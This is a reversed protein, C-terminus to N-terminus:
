RRGRDAHQEGDAIADDTTDHRDEWGCRAYVSREGELDHAECRALVLEEDEPDTLIEVSAVDGILMLKAM